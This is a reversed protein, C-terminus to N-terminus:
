SSKNTTWAMKSISNIHEKWDCTNSFTIGLHKHCSSETLVTNNMSLPPHAVPDLKKSVLFAVTKRPHFDVLWDVAWTSIKGLDSNIIMAATQPNEVIIYLSTDDAFLRISSNIGKVIDNIFVLFLLPGLISGQPVGAYVPAWDSTAGGLVVCQRRDSLYSTFWKIVQDSCGLRTLKYLLGNHWVRDFAKSIDCFVARVEKGSDVAECFTHYTHILQYTTSDGPVFGSQFPTLLQNENIYNFLHKHVCREMIKGVPDLLSIPRYNSPLSKDEKKHIPTLYGDKWQSPFYGQTLSRRFIISLPHALISAGEKLLRPSLHNPGCAKKVDLHDLVDKVDQESIQISELTSDTALPLHPPHKNKDNIVTQMSFYNNLMNAKQEDDEAHEGNFTLTPISTSRKDINLLQKSTKWFLRSNSNETNLQQELKDFYNTKSDRIERICINRLQKYKQWYYVNSTQKYKRYARKRKRILRRINCNIWPHSNTRITIIKNPIAKEGADLITQNILMVNSDINLDSELKNILDCESLLNRYRNYDALEYNWIKRKIIKPKPRLFKLLILIPCHYRIQDPIFPDIVGSYLVNAPNRLIFLDILSSSRETFHTPERIIQTLNYQNNLEKIKKGADSHMDFNFDGTIIVDNIGTNCARDFSESVLNFYANNSNPPRYFGGVLIPKNKIKIEVWVAELGRIELDNRRKCFFTDRVYIVVGGGPRDVRDTRYPPLFNEILIDNDKIEPKLWSESYILVDYAHSECKVLDLKPQISQINLHMISLHNSLDQISDISSLTSNLSSTESAPGLNPQIDGSRLLICLLWLSITSYSVSYVFLRTFQANEVSFFRTRKTPYMILKYSENSRQLALTFSLCPINFSFDNLCCAVFVLIIFFYFKRYM